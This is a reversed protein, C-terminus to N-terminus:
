CLSAKTFCLPEESTLPEKHFWKYFFPEEIAEHLLLTNEVMNIVTLLPFTIDMFVFCM